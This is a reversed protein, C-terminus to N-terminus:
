RSQETLDQFVQIQHGFNLDLLGQLNLAGRTALNPFVEDPHSVDGLLFEDEPEGDLSSVDIGTAM